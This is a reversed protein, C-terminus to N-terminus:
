PQRLYPHDTPWADGKQGKRISAGCAMKESAWSSSSSCECRIRLASPLRLRSTVEDPRRLGPWTGCGRLNHTESRSVQGGASDGLRTHARVGERGKASALALRHICMEIFCQRLRARTSAGSLRPPGPRSEAARHDNSPGGCCTVPCKVLMTCVRVSAAYLRCAVQMILPRVDAVEGALKEM